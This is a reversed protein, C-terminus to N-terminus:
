EGTESRTRVRDRHRKGPILVCHNARKLPKGLCTQASLTCRTRHMLECDASIRLLCTLALLSSNQMLEPMAECM